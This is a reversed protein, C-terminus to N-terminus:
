SKGCLSEVQGHLWSTIASCVACRDGSSFFRMRRSLTASSYLNVAHPQPRAVGTARRRKRCPSSRAVPTARGWRSFAFHTEAQEHVAGDAPAGLELGAHSAPPGLEISAHQVLDGLVHAEGVIGAVEAEAMGLVM